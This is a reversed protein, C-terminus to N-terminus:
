LRPTYLLFPVRDPFARNKNKRAYYDLAPRESFDAAVADRVYWGATLGYRKLNAQLAESSEYPVIKGPYGHGPAGEAREALGASSDRKERKMEILTNMENGRGM